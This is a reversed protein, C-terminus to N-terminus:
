LKIRSDDLLKILYDVKNFLADLEIENKINIKYDREDRIRDIETMRNQSMLIFPAQFVALCSLILNLLIFPYHDFTYIYSNFIIWGFFYFSFMFIFLWSGGFAAVFDACKQPITTFKFKNEEDLRQQVLKEIPANQM